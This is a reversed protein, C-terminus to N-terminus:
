KIKIENKSRSKYEQIKVNIDELKIQKKRM